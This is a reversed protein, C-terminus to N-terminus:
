LAQKLALLYANAVNTFPEPVIPAKRAPLVQLAQLWVAQQDYPLVQIQDPYLRAAEPNGGQDSVFCPLGASVMEVAVHPFGEYLSPLLFCDAALAWEQVTRRSVRGEFRVRTELGLTKALARWHGLEPGEGLFVLQHTKPLDKLVELLFDIRKWPAARAVALLVQASEQIGFRARLEHRTSLNSEVEVTNYIVRQRDKKVGWADALRQLYASPTVVLSTRRAVWSELAFIMSWKFAKKSKLFVDLSQVNGPQASQMGEWAFDGGVRLATPKGAMLAGVTGPLGDSFPGQLFVVDAKMRRACRAVCWAYRLYRLFPGGARSVVEVPWGAGLATQADGYTVVAIELGRKCWDDALAPVFTAPGGIEPPYIGTALVIKM